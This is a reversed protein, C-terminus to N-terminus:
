AGLMDRAAAPYNTAFDAFIRANNEALEVAWDARGAAAVSTAYDVYAAVSSDYADLSLGAITRSADLWIQGSHRVMQGATEAAPRVSSVADVAAKGAARSAGTLSQLAAETAAGNTATSM